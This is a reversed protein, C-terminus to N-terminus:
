MYIDIYLRSYINSIIQKAIVVIPLRAFCYSKVQYVIRIKHGSVRHHREFCGYPKPHCWLSVLGGAVVDDYALPRGGLSVPRSAPGRAVTDDGVDDVAPDFAPVALVPAYSIPNPEILPVTVYKSHAIPAIQVAIALPRELCTYEKPFDFGIILLIILLLLSASFTISHHM